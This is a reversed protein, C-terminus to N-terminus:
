PRVVGSRASHVKDVQGLGTPKPKIIANSLLEQMADLISTCIIMFVHHYVCVCVFRLRLGQCSFVM